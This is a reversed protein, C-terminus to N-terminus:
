VMQNTVIDMPDKMQEMPASMTVEGVRLHRVEEPRLARLSM